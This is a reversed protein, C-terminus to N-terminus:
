CDWKWHSLTSNNLEEKHRKWYPMASELLRFFERSHTRERIHALEHVLVYDICNPAKKALELNLWIRNATPNCTGWKTKMKKIRVEKAQVDLKKEWKKLSAPILKKLESRYFREVIAEKQPSTTDSNAYLTIKKRSSVEIKPRSETPTVDLLFRDGLFFHSEGSVYRREPQREQEQFKKQQTKIWQMKSLVFLRITEDPVDHPAAVRVRGAPPYVGLHINGIDKKVTDIMLNSVRMKSRKTSM